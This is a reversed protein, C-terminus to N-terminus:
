KETPNGKKEEKGAKAPGKIKRSATERVQPGLLGLLQKVQNALRNCYGRPKKSREKKRHTGEKEQPSHSIYRIVRYDYDFLNYKACWHMLNKVAHMCDVIVLKLVPITLEKALLTIM